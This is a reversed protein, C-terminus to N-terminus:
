KLNYCRYFLQVMNTVSSTDFNNSLNIIAISFCDLFTQSMSTVSKTNFSSLDLSQLSKCQFFAYNLNNLSQTNVGTFDISTLSICSHFMNTMDTVQSFDFNTFNIELINDLGFFMGICSTIPSDYVLRVNTPWEYINNIIKSRERPNEENNVYIQSPILGDNNIISLNGTGNIKLKIENISFLTRSKKTKSIIRPIIILILIYILLININSM